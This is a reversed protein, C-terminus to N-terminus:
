PLAPQKSRTKIRAGLYDRNMRSIFDVSIEKPCVAECERFLTCSGFYEEMVEVM